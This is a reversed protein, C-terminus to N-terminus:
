NKGSMGRRVEVARQQLEPYLCLSCNKKREGMWLILTQEYELVHKRKGKIQNRLLELKESSKRQTAKRGERGRGKQAMSLWVHSGHM